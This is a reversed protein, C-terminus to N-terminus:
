SRYTAQIRQRLHESATIPKTSGYKQRLQKIEASEEPEVVPALLVKDDPQVFFPISLRGVNETETRPFVVRHVTSKLLGATWFELADGINVVIAKEIPSVDVWKGKLLVQLGGKDTFQQFLLTLSGYDTHQGARVDEIEPSSSKSHM